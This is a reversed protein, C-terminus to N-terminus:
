EIAVTTSTTLGGSVAYVEVTYTGRKFPGIQAIVPYYCVCTCPFEAFDHEYVVVLNDAINMELWLASACCNAVMMGELHIYRGEATVVATGVGPITPEGCLGVFYVIEPQGLHTEYYEDAFITFDGFNVVGDPSGEPYIDTEVGATLWEQAIM